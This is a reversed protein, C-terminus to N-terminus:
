KNDQIIKINGTHTWTHTHQIPRTAQILSIQNSKIIHTSWGQVGTAGTSGQRGLLGAPGQVGTAGTTGTSGTSGTQGTPGQLGTQGSPGTFGPPGSTGTNGVLLIVVM